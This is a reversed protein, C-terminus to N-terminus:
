KRLRYSDIYYCIYGLPCAVINKWFEMYKFKELLTKDSCKAFRWFNIASRIKFYVPIKYKSLESYYLLYADPTSRRNQIITHSMSDTGLEYYEVIKAFYRLKLKNSIRNWILANPVYKGNYVPFLYQKILSTRFSELKDGKYKYKYRFDVVSSDLVEYDVNGGVINGRRDAKLGAVGAFSPDDKIQDYYYLLLEVTNDLYVDDSDLFTFLESEAYKAATNHAFYQGRNEQYVYKIDLINESIFSEVVAKTDDKSGDDVILWEFNKETQRKLSEYANKLLHARNYTPTFVTVRKM